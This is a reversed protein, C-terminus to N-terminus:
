HFVHAPVYKGGGLSLSCLSSLRIILCFLICLCVCVRLCLCVGTSGRFGRTGTLWLERQCSVPFIAGGLVLAVSVRM